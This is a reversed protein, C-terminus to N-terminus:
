ESDSSKERRQRNSQLIQKAKDVIAKTTQMNSRRATYFPELEKKLSNIQGETQVSSQYM